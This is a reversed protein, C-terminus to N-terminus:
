GNAKAELEAVKGILDGITQQLDRVQHQLEVIAHAMPAEAAEMRKTHVKRIAEAQAELEKQREEAGKNPDWNPKTIKLGGSPTTIKELPANIDISFHERNRMTM